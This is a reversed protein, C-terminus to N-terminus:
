SLTQSWCSVRYVNLVGLINFIQRVIM